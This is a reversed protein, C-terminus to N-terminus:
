SKMTLSVRQSYIQDRLMDFDSEHLEDGRVKAATVSLMEVLTLESICHKESSNDLLTEVFESGAERHYYKALSSTDWFHIAM